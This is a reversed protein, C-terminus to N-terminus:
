EHNTCVVVPGTGPVPEVGVVGLSLWWQCFPGVVAGAFAQLRGMGQPYVARGRREGAATREVLEALEGATGVGALRCEVLDIGLEQELAGALEAAALSDFGISKLETDPGLPSGADVAALGGLLGYVRDALAPEEQIAM